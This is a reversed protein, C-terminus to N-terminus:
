RFNDYCIESIKYLGKQMKKRHKKSKKLRSHPARAKCTKGVDPLISVAQRNFYLAVAPLVALVVSLSGWVLFVRADIKLALQLAWGITLINERIKKM